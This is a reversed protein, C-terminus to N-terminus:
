RPSTPSGAVAHSPWDFPRQQEVIWRAVRPDREFLYQWGQILKSLLQGPALQRERLDADFGAFTVM